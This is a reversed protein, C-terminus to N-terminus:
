RAKAQRYLAGLGEILEILVHQSEDSGGLPLEPGQFLSHGEGRYAQFRLVDQGAWDKEAPRNTATVFTVRLNGVEVYPNGSSDKPLERRDM